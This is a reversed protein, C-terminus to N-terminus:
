TQRKLGAAELGWRTIEAVVDETTALRKSIQQVISTFFSLAARSSLEIVHQLSGRDLVLVVAETEATATATRPLGGLLSMEGFFEGPRLRRLVKEVKGTIVKSILITGQRIFFMEGGQEGERFLVQGKKLHGERARRALVGLQEPTFGTFPSLAKLFSVTDAPIKLAHLVAPPLPAAAPHPVGGPVISFGLARLDRAISHLRREDKRRRPGARRRDLIVEFDEAAVRNRVLARFIDVRKRSVIFLARGM